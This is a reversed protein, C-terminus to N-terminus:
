DLSLIRAAGVASRREGMLGVELVVTAPQRVINQGPPDGVLM